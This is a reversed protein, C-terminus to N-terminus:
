LIVPNGAEIHGLIEARAQALYREVEDPTSLTAGPLTVRVAKPQLKRAAMERANAIRGPLAFLKDEWDKLPTADLSALLSAPDAVQVEAVAGLGCGAIIGDRDAAELRQWDNSAELAAVQEDRSVALRGRAALLEARLGDTLQQMLPAVPDPEALLSRNAVIADAQVQVEAAVALEGAHHLLRQMQEWRPQRAAKAKERAECARFLSALEERQAAVAAFQEKGSMMTLSRVPSSDLPPPLPAEGGTRAAMDILRQLIPAIAPAEQNSAVPFGTDAGLGRIAMRQALTIVTEERAFIVSSIQTQSLGNAVTAQGNLTGHLLGGALLSLLAGDVADRSWGYPAAEFYSRVDRGPKGAPGVFMRVERCVPEIDPDGNHGILSLADPSGARAKEVVKGWAPNDAVNFKPYLRVVSADAAAEVSEFLSNRAVENGGGQYVRATGLVEGIRRGLRGRESQVRAQMSALAENGEPTTPAPRENIASQAATAGAIADDITADTDRPIFVFVTPSDTGATRADAEVVGPATDWGDRVWIAVDTSSHPPAASGYHLRWKRGVNSAGQQLKLGKLAAEAAGRLANTRESTIRPADNRISARHKQFAGQWEASEKTQLRYEGDGVEMVLGEDTLDRLLEPLRQRLASSGERLDEVLLDALTSVTATLRSRYSAM